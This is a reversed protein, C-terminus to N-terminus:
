TPKVHRYSGYQITTRRTAAPKSPTVQRGVPRGETNRPSELIVKFSKDATFGFERASLRRQPRDLQARSRSVKDATKM